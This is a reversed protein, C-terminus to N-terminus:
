EAATATPMLNELEAVSHFESLYEPRHKSLWRVVGADGLLKRIYGKEFGHRVAYQRIADAQNETSYQQHETSMRVYQAARVSTAGALTRRHEDRDDGGAL